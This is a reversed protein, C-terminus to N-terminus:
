KITICDRGRDKASYLAQDARHIIEIYEPDSDTVQSIGCSFSISFEDGRDNTFVEEKLLEKLRNLSGKAEEATTNPLLVIFEEGGFRGVIDTERLGHKTSNLFEAVRILVADGVLHGYNDNVRKFFDIDLLAISYIGESSNECKDSETSLLECRRTYESQLYEYFARRNNIKTLYDIRSLEFFKSNLSAIQDHLDHIYGIILTAIFWMLIGSASYRAFSLMHNENSVISLLLPTFLTNIFVFSILGIRLGFLFPMVMIPLASFVVVRMGSIPYHFVVILVYIIYAVAAITHRKEKLSSFAIPYKNKM